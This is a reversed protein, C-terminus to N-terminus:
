NILGRSRLIPRPDVLHKSFWGKYDEAGLALSLIETFHLIPVTPKETSRVELNMHCMACATVICEAGADKAGRTIKNVLPTVIDPRAVSLFTGCCQSTYGWPLSTAGLSSLIREMLGHYKDERQLSPPRALMCGYYTVCKLGNLKKANNKAFLLLDKRDLFEFYHQIKLEPDAPRGWRKEYRIRANEDHQLHHQAESLRMTCGPCAVVLPRKPPTLSLNRTALEFALESNISHASSSGCCSWDDLEVLNIGLRNFLNILSLNNETATSALSCGPFYSVDIAPKKNM